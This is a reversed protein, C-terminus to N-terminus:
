ISARELVKSYKNNVDNIETVSVVPTPMLQIAEKFSNGLRSYNILETQTQATAGFPIGGGAQNIASLLPRFKSVSNANIIAEGREAEIQTGGQSHPLGGILMGRAAKPTKTKTIDRVAKFGVAAVTAVNALKIGFEFPTVTKTALEATIGQYTNILAQALAIAKGAKSQKGLADALGGLAGLAINLKQDTLQKELDASYKAYKSEILNKDAGSKEAAELELRKREELEARRREQAEEFSLQETALLNEKDIELREKELEINALRNEENLKNILNNYETQSIEGLALRQAQYQKEVELLQNNKEQENLITQDIRLKEAEAINFANEVALEAQKGALEQGIVLSDANYKAQSIKGKELQADLIALKKNAVEQAIVVEESLTKAKGGQQALYLALEDSLRQQSKQFSDEAAKENNAALEKRAGGIVRMQELESEIGRDKAADLQVELDILAQQDTRKKGSLTEELKYIDIKKQIIKAEEEGNQKNIEIIRRAAEEREKFSKSTDKSILLQKDLEDGIKIQARNYRLQSNEIEKNLRDIDKGKKFADKFYGTLAQGNKKIANSYEKQSNKYQATGQKILEANLTFIGKIVKGVAEFRQIIQTKILNGFDTIFNSKGSFVDVIAKGFNQLLGLTAQFVAQLPRTVSTVKDIGEQTTSLYAILSGLVVVIAGIGTSILAAKFLKLAVNVSLLSNRVIGNSAAAAENAAKQLKIADVTENIVRKSEKLIDLTRLIVDGLDTQAFKTSNLADKYEGIRDKNGAYESSNERIYKTQNDIAANLKNRLSIEEESSGKINKSLAILKNRDQIVQQVSKSETTMTDALEKTALQLSKASNVSQNYEQRAKKLAIENQVIAETNDNESAKLLKNAATLSEIQRKADTASKIFENVDIDITAINVKEAM